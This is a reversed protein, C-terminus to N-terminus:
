CLWLMGDVVVVGFVVLLVDDVGIVFVVDFLLWFFM